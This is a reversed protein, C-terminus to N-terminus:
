RSGFIAAFLRDIPEKFITNMLFMGTGYVTFLIVWSPANKRLAELTTKSGRVGYLFQM